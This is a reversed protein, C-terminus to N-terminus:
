AGARGATGISLRPPPASALAVALQELEGSTVDGALAVRTNAALLITQGALAFIARRSRGDKLTTM